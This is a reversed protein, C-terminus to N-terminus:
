ARLRMEFCAGKEQDILRASGGHHEAVSRVIALGLGTGGAHARDTVFREFIKPKLAPHVGPGQDQIRFVAEERDLSLRCDIRGGEPSYRLANSLLNDIARRLWRADGRIRVHEFDEKFDIRKSEITASCNKIADRALEDLQVMEGDPEIGRAELRALALLDQLLLELRASAEDIRSLFRERMQPESAAGEMLAETSARIASVPNKLEHSLDAVFQEIQHRDELSRRMSEFAQTLRRVERGVPPPLVAHRKGAAIEEASHALSEIPRALSRGLLLAAALASVLLICFLFASKPGFGRVLDVFANRHELGLAQVRNVAWMGMLGTTLLTTGLIALFLLFRISFGHRVAYCLRSAIWLLVFVVLLGGLLLVAEGSAVVFDETM